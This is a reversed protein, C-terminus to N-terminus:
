RVRRGSVRRRRTTATSGPRDHRRTPLHGATSRGVREDGAGSAEARRGGPREVQRRGPAPQPRGDRARLPLRGAPGRRELASMAGWQEYSFAGAGVVPKFYGNARGTLRQVLDALWPLRDLAIGPDAGYLTRLSVAVEDLSSNGARYGLGNVATHLVSAGAEYAALVNAVALGFDNHCHVEVPVHIWETLKRVLYAIAAPRAIGQSDVLTVADAGAREAAQVADRLQELTTRTSEPMFFNVHLRGSQGARRFGPGRGSARDPRAQPRRASVRRQRYWVMVHRVGLDLAREVRGPQWTVYLAAPLRRAMYQRVVELWGPVTLFLEIRRLGVACLAEAIAVKDECRVRRRRVGGRRAVHHRSADGPPVAHRGGARFQASERVLAARDM